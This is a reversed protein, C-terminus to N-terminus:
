RPRGVGHVAVYGSLGLFGYSWVTSIGGLWEVLVPMISATSLERTAPGGEARRSNDESVGGPGGEGGLGTRDLM